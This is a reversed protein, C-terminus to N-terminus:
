VRLWCLSHLNNHGTFKLLDDGGNGGAIAGPYLDFAAQPLGRSCSKIGKEHQIFEARVVGLIVNSTKGSMWMTTKFCHGIHQCTVHKVFVVHTIAPIQFATVHLPHGSASANDMRF